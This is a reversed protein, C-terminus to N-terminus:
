GVPKDLLVIHAKLAEKIFDKKNAIKGNNQLSM